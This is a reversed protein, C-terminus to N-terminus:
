KFTSLINNAASDVSFLSEALKKANTSCQKRYEKSDLLKVANDYFVDDDGTISVLGSENENIVNLLDNGPNVSGLVPLPQSIYGLIKGPFNHTKHGKHLSFLGINAIKQIAFYEEQTVGPILLINKLGYKLILSEVLGYEDGQGILVFHAQSNEQMRVALNVINQMDQAHGINGGYIFIIKDELGYRKRFEMNPDIPSLSDVNVWNYLTKTSSAYKGNTYTNFWKLNAPSMVGISTAAHYNKKEYYQLFKTVPSKESIIGNDIAWQPFFDRLVLYSPISYKKKIKAIAKGFFISPSNYVVLNPELKKNKLTKLVKRSFQLENILRKAKSTNKTSGTKFRYIHVGDIVSCEADNYNNPTICFVRYGLSIFQCALEHYMKASVKKSSPLYDCVIFLINM